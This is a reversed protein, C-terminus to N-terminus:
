EKVLEVIFNVIQEFYKPTLRSVKDMSTNLNRWTEPLNRKETPEKVKGSIILDAFDDRSRLVGEYRVAEEMPLVTITQAAFGARLFGVDDSFPTPTFLIKELHMSSATQLAHDRLRKINTRINQVSANGSDKLIHDTTTSLIIVNGCGCADFNYIRAKELGWAKLKEAMTFSGQM